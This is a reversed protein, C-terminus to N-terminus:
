LQIECCSFVLVMSTIEVTGTKRISLDIREFAATM